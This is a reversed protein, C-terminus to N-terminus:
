VVSIPAAEPLEVGSGPRLQIVNGPQDIAALTPNARIWEDAYLFAETDSPVNQLLRLPYRVLTRKM